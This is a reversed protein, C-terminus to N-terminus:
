VKISKWKGQNVRFIILTAELFLHAALAIWPGWIGFNLKIGLLYSLPVFVLWSSLIGLYGTFKTDGAGSLAFWLTIAFVDIFQIAGVWPLIMIGLEIVDRDSTFIPVILDPFFIFILGMTGMIVFSGRLSEIISIEAKETDKKGLYKGVLTSCAQGVGVAPLFSAHAVAFVVQTAALQVTGIIGIIKYFIIFALNLAVESIAMPYGLEIQRKILNLDINMRFIDYKRIIDNKFLYVFYIFMMIFSSLVTSFAAGTVGLEPFDYWSWLISCWPYDISIFFLNIKSYGYILAANLYVNVINSLITAFMLVKTKEIGTYFGQFVFASVSFYISFAVISLYSSCILVVDSENILLFSIEYSLLYIFISLPLTFLFCLFQSNRLVLGCDSLTNQGVRRSVVSQTAVRFGIGISIAIWIVMGSMAVSVLENKGLHGVMATDTIHMLVRSLNSVIVPFALWM